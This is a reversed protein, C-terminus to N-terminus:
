CSLRFFQRIEFQKRSKFFLENITDEVDDLAYATSM